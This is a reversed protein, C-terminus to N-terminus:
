VNKMGFLLFIVPHLIKCCFSVCGGGGGCVCVCVGLFVCFQPYQNIIVYEIVVIHHLNLPLVVLYVIMM